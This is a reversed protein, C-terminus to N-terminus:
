ELNTEGPAVEHTSTGPNFLADLIEQLNFGNAQTNPLIYLYEDWILLGKSRGM